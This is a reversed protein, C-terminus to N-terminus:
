LAFIYQRKFIMFDQVKKASRVARIHDSSLCIVEGEM